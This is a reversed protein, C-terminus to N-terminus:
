PTGEAKPLKLTGLDKVEGSKLIVPQRVVQKDASAEVYLQTGPILNEVLFSDGDNPKPPGAFGQILMDFGM